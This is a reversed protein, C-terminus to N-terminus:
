PSPRRGSYRSAAVAVVLALLNLLAAGITERALFTRAQALSFPNSAANALGIVITSTVLAFLGGGLSWVIPNQGKKWAVTGYVLAAAVAMAWCIESISNM